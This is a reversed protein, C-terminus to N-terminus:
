SDETKLFRIYRLLDHRNKTNLQQIDYVVDHLTIDDLYKTLKLILISM